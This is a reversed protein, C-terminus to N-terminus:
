NYVTHEFNFRYASLVAEIDAIKSCYFINPGGVMFMFDEVIKRTRPSLLSSSFGMLWRLEHSTMEWNRRSKNRVIGRTTVVMLTSQRLDMLCDDVFLNSLHSSEAALSRPSRRIFLSTAELVVRGRFLFFQFTETAM